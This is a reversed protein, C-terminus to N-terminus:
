CYAVTIFEKVYGVFLADPFLERYTRLAIVFAVDDGKWHFTCFVETGEEGMFVCYMMTARDKLKSNKARANAAEPSFFAFHKNKNKKKKENKSVKPLERMDRCDEAFCPLPFDKPFDVFDRSPARPRPYEAYIPEEEKLSNRMVLRPIAYIQDFEDERLHPICEEDETVGGNALLEQHSLLKPTVAYIQELEKESLPLIPEMQLQEEEPPVGYFEEAATADFIQQLEKESPTVILPMQEEEEEKLPNYYPQDDVAPSPPPIQQGPQQDVTVKSTIIEIEGLYNTKIQPPGFIDAISPRGTSPKEEHITPTM